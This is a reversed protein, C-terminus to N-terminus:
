RPSSTIFTKLTAEHIKADGVGERVTERSEGDLLLFRDLRGNEIQLSVGLVRAQL